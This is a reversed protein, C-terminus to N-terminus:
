SAPTEPEFTLTYKAGPQFHEAVSGKVNMTMSLAPTFEAWEKNRGDAYDAGFTLDVTGSHADTKRTCEVKATIATM